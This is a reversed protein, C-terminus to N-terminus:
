LFVNFYKNLIELQKEERGRKEMELTCFRSEITRTASRSRGTTFVLPSTSNLEHFPMNLPCPPKKECAGRM